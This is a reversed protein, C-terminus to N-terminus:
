FLGQKVAIFMALLGALFGVLHGVVLRFEDAKLPM